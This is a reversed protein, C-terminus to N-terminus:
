PRRSTPRSRRTAARTSPWWSATSGSRPRTISRASTCSPASSPRCSPSSASTGASATSVPTASAPCPPKPRSRCRSKTPGATVVGKPMKFRMEDDFRFRWKGNLNTWNDRVLQPRPYEFQSMTKREKLTPVPILIRGQRGSQQIPSHPRTRGAQRARRKCLAVCAGGFGAGTLRAGVVGPQARLLACLEDLEPISVEYDDRLSFHSANMLEGFREASVGGAAELVRLNEQVVHRARRRLPEPLSEVAAPDQVDRLATVGLKRSAEECEARRENYKSAALTRPVGSDIVIM